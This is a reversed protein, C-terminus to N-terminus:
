RPKSLGEALVQSLAAALTQRRFPKAVHGDFGAARYEDIQHQMANATVALAPAPPVGAAAEAKRIASLAAIGDLGPMSIDLLLADFGGPVFHACAAEGDHALTVRTGLAQLMTELIRRNTQNDDAVLLRLGDLCADPQAPAAPRVAGDVAARPAPLRVTVRTGHGESSDLDITGGMLAILRRTISLGLGTGGFRRATSTEAQEFEDFVRTKQGDSMGIGTDAVTIQLTDGVLTAAITVGGRETFKVANGVLNVLIQLLRNPDGLRASGDCDPAPDLTLTLGAAAVRPAFLARVRAMIETVVYPQSEIAMKGAEIKALDLVDNLIALLGEGSDRITDIMDRQRPSLATDGLLDTMGLVGTLPTRLEHSMNALFRSKAQNAAEARETAAILASVNTGVGRYGAYAGGSDHFPAGSIRLWIPARDPDPTLRFLFDTLKERNRARAALGSWDGARDDATEWIGLSALTQGIVADVPIGTTREFGSTLHTVRHDRATEWFWEDSVAAIDAYRQDAIRQADLAGELAQRADALAAEREKRETIDMHLGSEEAPIGPSAWTQVRTQSLVWIWRGDRHRLRFEHAVRDGDTAYLDAIRRQALPIDDPHLISEFKDRTWPTLEDLRYGLMAAYPEDITIRGTGCDLQWTGVSSADLIARLREEAHRRESLDLGVGSIALPAGSGDRASVQGRTLVHVWHGDAHRLRLEIEVADRQGDRAERLLTQINDFDGPYLIRAWLDANVEPDAIHPRGLMQSWQENIRTTGRRCDFEWTGIRAGTIIANLRQEADRIATVDVRLGVRGGEPTQREFIRLWRGDRLRLEMTGAPQQHLAMRHALWEEERGVAEPIEGQALAHRFFDEFQVGPVMIAASLPFFGRYRENCLVLRDDADFYAFGDQLSEIAANLRAHSQEASRALRELEAEHHKQATIDNEIVMFGQPTGDGARMPQIAVDVWYPQGDRDTKAVDVRLSYRNDLADRIRALTEPASRPDRFETVHRGRIESLSYGTRAEVARNVWVVREEADLVVALNSMGRTVEGLMANEADRIHADTVDRIRFVFGEHGRIRSRRAITLDYWREAGGNTLVYRPVKATGERRARAMGARQLQAVEPPLTEELTRGLIADPAVSLLDPEASHFDICRGDDDIELLLEPMASLTARLRELTEAQRANAADLDREIQRRVLSSMLGDALTRLMWLDRVGFATAAHVRDFGILGKLRAEHVLPVVTISRIAQMSLFDRLDGAPLAAVDDISMAEGTELSDPAFALADVPVSQLQAKMPAVGPGCWEHTNAWTTGRQVFLYARDAGSVAALQGLVADITDDLGEPTARLLMGLAGIVVTHAEDALRQTMEAQRSGDEMVHRGSANVKPSLLLSYFRKCSSFGNVAFRQRVHDARITVKRPKRPTRAFDAAAKDVPTVVVRNDRRCDPLGVAMGPTMRLAGTGTAVEHRACPLTIAVSPWRTAFFNGVHAIPDGFSTIGLKPFARFVEVPTGHGAPSDHAAPRSASKM